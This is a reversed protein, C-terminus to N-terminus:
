DGYHCPRGLALEGLEDHLFNDGEDDEDLSRAFSKVSDAPKVRTRGWGFYDELILKADPTLTRGKMMRRLGPATMEAVGGLEVPDITCPSDTHCAYLTAWEYETLGGVSIPPVLYKKVRKIRARLGLEEFMERKAANGYSEGKKVHGTSSITLLGPHWRDRKSRCQLVFKGDSRVVLVAVARHLLGERVCEAVTATGIVHDRADVLDVLEDATM